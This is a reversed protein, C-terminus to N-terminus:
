EGDEKNAKKIEPLETEPVEEEKFTMYMEFEGGILSDICEQDNGEIFIVVTYKHIDGVKFNTIRESMVTEEDKFPVTGEEAQGTVKSLKAYVTKQDNRYVIVRVAEDINKVIDQIKIEVNYNTTEHGQNEAYFTYAIYNNGNHAGDAENQINEPLWDISISSYNELVETKLYHGKRKNESNEYIVLNPRALYENDLYITFSKDKYFYGLIIYIDLLILFVILLAIKLIRKRKKKNVIEKASNNIRQKTM